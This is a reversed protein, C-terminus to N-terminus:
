HGPIGSRVERSARVRSPRPSRRGARGAAVLSESTRRAASALACRYTPAQGALRGITAIQEQTLRPPAGVNRPRNRSSLGSRAFDRLDASVTNVHVQLRRAILPAPLDASRLLLVEARRRQWPRLLKELWQHVRRLEAPSPKRVSLPRSMTSGGSPSAGVM